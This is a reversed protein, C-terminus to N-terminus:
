FPHNLSHSPAVSHSTVHFMFSLHLVYPIGYLLPDSFCGLLFIPLCSWCTALLCTVHHEAELLGVWYGLFYLKFECCFLLIFEDSYSFNFLHVLHFM